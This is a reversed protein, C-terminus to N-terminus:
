PAVAEENKVVKGLRHLGDEARLSEPQGILASSVWAVTFLPKDVIESLLHYRIRIM